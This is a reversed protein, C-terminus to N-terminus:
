PRRSSGLRRRSRQVALLAAIDDPDGSRSILRKVRILHEISCVRVPQEGAHKIESGAWLEDFPVHFRAFVDISRGARDVMRLVTLMELPLPITPVFGLAMLAASARRAEEPAPDVVLDLDIVLRAHGHLVVAVSGVVVYHVGEHELKEFVDEFGM